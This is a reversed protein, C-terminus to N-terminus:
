EELLGYSQDWPEHCSKRKSHIGGSFRLEPGSTSGTFSSLITGTIEEEPMVSDTSGTFCTMKIVSVKNELVGLTTNGIRYNSEPYGIAPDNSHDLMHMASQTLTRTGYGSAVPVPGVNNCDFRHITSEEEYLM